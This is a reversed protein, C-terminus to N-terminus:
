VSPENLIGLAYIDLGSFFWFGYVIKGEGESYAAYKFVQPNGTDRQITGPSSLLQRAMANLRDFDTASKSQSSMMTPAVIRWLGPYRTGYDRYYLSYAMSSMVNDFRARNIRLVVTQQNDVTAFAWEGFTESRLGQSREFSDRAKSFLAEGLPNVNKEGTLLNRVYEVDMSNDSNHRACSPVTILMNRHGRPFFSKPPVHERTTAPSDCMYCSGTPSKETM